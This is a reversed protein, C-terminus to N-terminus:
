IAFPPPFPSRRGKEGWTNVGEGSVWVVFRPGKELPLVRRYPFVTYLPGRLEAARKQGSNVETSKCLVLVLVYTYPVPVLTPTTDFM